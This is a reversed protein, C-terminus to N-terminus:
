NEYAATSKARNLNDITFYVFQLQNSDKIEDFLKNFSSYAAKCATCGTFGYVVVTTKGHFIENTKWEENINQLKFTPFPTSLRKQFEQQTSDQYLKRIVSKYAQNPQQANLNVSFLLLIAWFHTKNNM